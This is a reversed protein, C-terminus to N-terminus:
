EWRFVPRYDFICDVNCPLPMEKLAEDVSFERGVWRECQENTRPDNSPKIITMARVHDRKSELELRYAMEKYSLPDRGMKKAVKIMLLNAMKLQHMDNETNLIVSLLNYSAELGNDKSGLRLYEKEFVEHSVGAGQVHRQWINKEDYTYM